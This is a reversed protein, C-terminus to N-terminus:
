KEQLAKELREVEGKYYTSAPSLESAKKMHTIATEKDGKKEFIQGLTYWMYAARANKEKKLEDQMMEVAYDYKEVIELNVISAAYFYKMSEDAQIKEEFLQILKDKQGTNGYYTVLNNVSARELEPVLTKAKENLELGKEYLDEMKFRFIASAYANMMRANDPFAELGKEYTERAKDLNENGAHTRAVTTYASYLYDRNKPNSAIFAELAMPDRQSRAASLAVRYTAEEKYGKTNDPDLELVKEFLPTAKAVEYRALYKKALKYDIDVDEPNKEQEALIAPLTNIGAAFDKVMQFTEEKAEEDGGFGVFRDIEEGNADLFVVTPTGSTKFRKRWDTYDEDSVTVRLNIYKANAFKGVESNQWVLQDLKM